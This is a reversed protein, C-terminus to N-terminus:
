EDLLCTKVLLETVKYPDSNSAPRRDELYGCKKVANQRQIRISSGRDSIGSYFQDIPCTEHKGTLRRANDKGGNPDYAKIHREHQKSLKEVAKEIEVLGNESRM